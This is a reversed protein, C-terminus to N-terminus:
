QGPEADRHSLQEASGLGQRRWASPSLGTAQRFVRCFGNADWPGTAAAVAAVTTAPDLLLRQAREIRMRRLIRGPPAGLGQRFCAQTRQWSLGLERAIDAQGINQCLHRSMWALVPALRHHGVQGLNLEACLPQVLLWALATAEALAGANGHAGLSAHLRTFHRFCESGEVLRPAFGAGAALGDLGLHVDVWHVRLTTSAQPASLTRWPNAPPLCLVQGPALVVTPPNGADIRLRGGDVRALVVHGQGPLTSFGPETYTTLGSGLLQLHLRNQLTTWAPDM